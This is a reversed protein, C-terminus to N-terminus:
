KCSPRVDLDDDGSLVGLACLDCRPVLSYHVYLEPFGSADPNEQEPFFSEAPEGGQSFCFM